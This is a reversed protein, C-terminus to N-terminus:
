DKQTLPGKGPLKIWLFLATWLIEFLIMLIRSSIAILVAISSPVVKSLLLSLGIETIGLNTPSFFLITSLIGVLAWSTIFYPLNVVGIPYIINGTEFLVVGGLIWTLIYALIGEIIFLYNLRHVDVNKWRLVWQIVKPHIVILGLLFVAILIMPSIHYELLTQTAFILTVLIGALSILVVEVGSALATTKLDIGENNYLQFRSALYWVTGPIRKALNSIIYFQIHKQYSVKNYFHNVIWGWVISVWFLTASFVLFAILIPVPRLKWTYNLIIEKQRYVLYGLVVITLVISIITVIVGNIRRFNLLIRKFGSKIYLMIETLM